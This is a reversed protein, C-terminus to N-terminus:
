NVERFYTIKKKSKCYSCTGCEKPKLIGTKIKNIFPVDTTFENLEIKLLENPITIADINPEDEKTAAILHVDCDINFNQRVIEKYIALQLIYGYYKYWTEYCKNKSNWQDSFNAMCKLDYIQKKEKDFLDLCCKIPVGSINGTLIVQKECRNIIDVIFPQDTIRKASNLIKKYNSKLEGKTKGTSCTLEEINEKLFSDADGAVLTEFLKGEMYAIKEEKPIEGKLLALAQAECRKFAKYQSVSCYELDAQQSFYNDQTLKLM